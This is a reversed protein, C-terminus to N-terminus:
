AAEAVDEDVASMVHRAPIRPASLARLCSRVMAMTSTRPQLGYEPLVELAELWTQLFVTDAAAAGPDAQWRGDALDIVNVLAIREQLCRVCLLRRHWVCAPVAGSGISRSSPPVAVPSLGHTGCRWCLQDVLGSPPAPAFTSATHSRM